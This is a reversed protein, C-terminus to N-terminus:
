EGASGRHLRCMMCVCRDRWRTGPDCEAEAVSVDPEGQRRVVMLPQRKLRRVGLVVVRGRGHGHGHGLGYLSVLSGHSYSPTEYDGCLINLMAGLVVLIDVCM